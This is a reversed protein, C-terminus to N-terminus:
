YGIKPLSGGSAMNTSVLVLIFPLLRVAAKIASDGHVFQFYLPIYYLPIYINSVTAATQINFLIQSRSKLIHGPPLMRNESSTFLKFRQQLATLIMLVGFVVWTAISRGDDWNWLSGAFTMVLSLSVLAGSFLSFGIWDLAALKKWM